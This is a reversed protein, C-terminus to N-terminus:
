QGNAPALDPPTEIRKLSADLKDIRDHLHAFERYLGDAMEALAQYLAGTDTNATHAKSLSELKAAAARLAM